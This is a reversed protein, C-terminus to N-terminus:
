KDSFPRFKSGSWTMGLHQSFELTNLRVGHVIVSLLNLIMNLGHGFVLLIVGFVFLAMKGFMPGAMTNVTSSIAAGALAVAWLRIYSVIDSFQNVVGLLVSIINKVSELISKGVSGEYNAFVFNLVFGLGLVGLCIFPLPFDCVFLTHETIGLPFRVSDVVMNMVVYFMGWIMFLSGMDGFFKLSRRDAVMCKLHAISLQILALAFCFIKQNTNAVDPSGSKAASFPAFSIDKLLPPLKEPEIGFWSCTVVGWGMTCLGLLTVLVGLSRGGKKSKALAVLGAITILAGYCADGFIMAFFICFFLLFWGSIDFERYGPTVDLFDTLPYIVSVLRNNKLKTPVFEDESPEGVALGWNAEKAAAQLTALDDVPVFGTVWALPVSTQPLAAEDDGAAKSEYGMGSYINEFEIDKALLPVYRKLSDVYQVSDAVQADIAAIQKQCDAIEQTLEATSKQPLVVQYAEPPMGVPRDADASDAILLFRAKAKDRNVLLTRADAGIAHYKALPIEYLSVYVGKEALAAIEEPVVSGWGSLRELENRNATIRDYCSKKQEAQQVLTAALELAADKELDKQHKLVKKPVKTDSLLSIAKALKNSQDRYTQLEDSAGQVDELQVVGLKRLRRLAEKREKELVVLAIKKMPVIM